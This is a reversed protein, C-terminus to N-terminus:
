AGNQYIARLIEISPLRKGQEACFTIGENWTVGVASSEDDSDLTIVGDVDVGFHQDAYSVALGFNSGGLNDINGSGAVVCSVRDEGALEGLANIQTQISEDMTGTGDPYSCFGDFTNEDLQYIMANTQIGKLTQQIAAINARERASALSSITITALTGIIAIVVLLEILTFGKKM